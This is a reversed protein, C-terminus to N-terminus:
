DSFADKGIIPVFICPVNLDEEDIGFGTRRYRKLRQHYKEGVPAVIVGEKSLQSVWSAPVEPVGGTSVIRNFPAKSPLGRSGDGLYTFVNPYECLKESSKEHLEKILEITHVEGEEVVRSLIAAQYGSGTGVELVKSDKELLLFETQMAVMHPASITQGEGIGLPRDTYSYNKLEEPVFNARDVDLFAKEVKSSRIFEREVLYNVLDENKENM